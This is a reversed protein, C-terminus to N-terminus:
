KKSKKPLPIDIRVEDIIGDEFMRNQIFVRSARLTSRGKESFNGQNIEEEIEPLISEFFLKKYHINNLNNQLKRLQQTLMEEQARLIEARQPVTKDGQLTLEIFRRCEQIPMGIERFCTVARGFFADALSFLRINNADREVFPFLGMKDYYRVTHESIRIMEAMQRVTFRPEIDWENDRGVLESYKKRKLNEM